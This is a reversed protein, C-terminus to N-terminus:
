KSPFLFMFFSFSCPKVNNKFKIVFKCKAIHSNKISFSECIWYKVCFIINIHIVFSVKSSSIHFINLIIHVDAFMTQLIKKIKHKKKETIRM